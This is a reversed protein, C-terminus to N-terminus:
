EKLTASNITKVLTSIDPLRDIRSLALMVAESGEETLNRSLCDRLKASRQEGTLPCHPDGTAYNVRKTLERGDNTFVTVVTDGRVLMTEGGNLTESGKVETKKMLEIVAEDDVSEGDFDSLTLSRKLIIQAMCYNLSFKAELKTKAVPYRLLDLIYPQVLVEMRLIDEAHLDHKTVLDYIADIGNHTAKCSPYPKMVMGPDLFESKGEDIASFIADLDANELGITLDAFGCKEEMSAPNSDYGLAALRAIRIAKAAASGAHFSKTMTGFNAKMGSSESVAMGMACVLQRRTLGLLRGAAAVAGFIGLSSTSHWGRRFNEKGMGRGILACVEVGAIYAALTEAGSAGREEGLALAAPLMVVSVHANSSDSVDDFDHVHAAIGNVLAANCADTKIQSCMVSAGETGGYKEAYEAAILAPKERAGAVMCAMGDAFFLKAESVIAPDLRHFDLELATKALAETLLM